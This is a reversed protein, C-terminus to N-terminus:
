RERGREHSLLLVGLLVNIIRVLVVPLTLALPAVAPCAFAACRTQWSRQGSSNVMVQREFM